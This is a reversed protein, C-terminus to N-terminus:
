RVKKLCWICGVTELVLGEIYEIDGIDLNDDLWRSLMEEAEEDTLGFEEQLDLEFENEIVGYCVKVKYNSM